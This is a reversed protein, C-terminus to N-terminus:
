FLIANITSGPKTACVKEWTRLYGFSLHAFIIWYRSSIVVMEAFYRKLFFMAWSFMGILYQFVNKLLLYQLYSSSVTFAYRDIFYYGEDDKMSPITNTLLATFFNHGLFIIIIMESLDTLEYRQLTSDHFNYHVQLRWHKAEGYCKSYKYFSAKRNSSISTWSTDVAFTLLSILHSTFFEYLQSKLELPAAIIRTRKKIQINQRSCFVNAQPWHM